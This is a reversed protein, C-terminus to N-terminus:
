WRFVERIATTSACARWRPLPAPSRGFPTLLKIQTRLLASASDAASATPYISCLAASLSCIALVGKFTM